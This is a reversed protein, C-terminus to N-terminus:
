VKRRNNQFLRSSANNKRYWSCRGALSMVPVSYFSTFVLTIAEDKGVIVKGCNALVREKCSTFLSIDM